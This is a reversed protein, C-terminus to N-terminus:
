LRCLSAAKKVAIDRLRDDLDNECAECWAELVLEAGWASEYAPFAGVDGGDQDTCTIESSEEFSYFDGGEASLHSASHWPAVFPLYETTEPGEIDIGVTIVKQPVYVKMLQKIAEPSKVECYIKFFEEFSMLKNIM